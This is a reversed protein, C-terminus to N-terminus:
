RFNRVGDASDGIRSVHDTIGPRAAATFGARYSSSAVSPTPAAAAGASTSGPASVSGASASASNRQEGEGYVTFTRLSGTLHRRWDKGAKADAPADGVREAQAPQQAAQVPVSFEQNVEPVLLMRNQAKVASDEPRVPVVRTQVAVNAPVGPERADMVIGRVSDWLNGDGTVNVFMIGYGAVACLAWELATKLVESMTGMAAKVKPAM